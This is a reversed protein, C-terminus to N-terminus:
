TILEYIAIVFTPMTVCFLFKKFKKIKFVVLSFIFVSILLLIYGFSM